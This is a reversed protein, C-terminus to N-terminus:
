RRLSVLTEMLSLTSPTLGDTSKGLNLKELITVIETEQELLSNQSAMLLENGLNYFFVVAQSIVDIPAQKMIDSHEKSGEYDMITYLGKYDKIIPRYMVAAAKHLNKTDVLYTELDIYEGLTLKELNPIFGYEIDNLKFRGKFSAPQGLVEAIETAIAEAQDQPFKLVNQIDLGCFIEITKYLLFDKDNDENSQVAHFRQFEEVTIDSLLTPVKIDM